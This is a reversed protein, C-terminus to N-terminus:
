AVSRLPDGWAMMLASAIEKALDLAQERTLAGQLLAGDRTDHGAVYLHQGGDAFVIAYGGPVPRIKLPLRSDPMRLFLGAKMAARHCVTRVGPPFPGSSRSAWKLGAGGEPLDGARELVAHRAGDAAM